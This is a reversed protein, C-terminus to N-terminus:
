NQFVLMQIGESSEDSDNPEKFALLTESGKTSGKESLEEFNSWQEWQGSTSGLPPALVDNECQLGVDIANNIADIWEQLDEKDYAQFFFNRDFYPCKVMFVLKGYNELKEHKTFVNAENLPVYGKLTRQVILVFM